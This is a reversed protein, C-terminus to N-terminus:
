KRLSFGGNAAINRMRLRVCKKLPKGELLRIDVSFLFFVRFSFHGNLYQAGSLYKFPFWVHLYSDMFSFSDRQFDNKRPHWIFSIRTVPARVPWTNSSRSRSLRASANKDWGRRRRRTWRVHTGGSRGERPRHNRQVFSGPLSILSSPGRESAVTTHVHTGIYVGIIAPSEPDEVRIFCRELRTRTPYGRSTTLAGRGHINMRM